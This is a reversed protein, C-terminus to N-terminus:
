VKRSDWILCTRCERHTAELWQGCGTCRSITQDMPRNDDDNVPESICNGTGGDCATETDIRGKADRAQWGTETAHEKNGKVMGGAILRTAFEIALHCILEGEQEMDPDGM